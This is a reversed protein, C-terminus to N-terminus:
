FNADFYTAKSSVRNGFAKRPQHCSPGGKLNPYVEGQEGRNAGPVGGKSEASRGKNRKEGQMGKKRGKEDKREGEEGKREESM